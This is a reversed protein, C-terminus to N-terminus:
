VEVCRCCPVFPSFQSSQLQFEQINWYRIDMDLYM